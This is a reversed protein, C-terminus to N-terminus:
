ITLMVKNTVSNKTTAHESGLVPQGKPGRVNVAEFGKECKCVDFDVKEGDGLSPEKHYNNKLIINSQHVFIDEKTDNRTIFGFGNKVNFWKVIGRIDKTAEEKLTDNETTLSAIAALREIILAQIQDQFVTFDRTHHRFMKM